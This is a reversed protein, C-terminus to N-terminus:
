KDEIRDDERLKDEFIAEGKLFEPDPSPLRSPSELPRELTLIDLM